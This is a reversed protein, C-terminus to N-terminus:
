ASRASCELPSRGLIKLVSGEGVKRYDHYWAGIRRMRPPTVLSVVEDANRALEAIVIRNAVPAALVVKTAGRRRAGEAAAALTGGTLVGDDVIIATKGRVDVAPRGARYRRADILIGEAADKALARVQGNTLDARALAERDLVLAWGESVVGIVLSPLTFARLKRVFCVDIALRLEEAVGDAVVLGGHEIGLVVARTGTYQALARGLMRGAMFRNAFPLMRATPSDEIHQPVCDGGGGLMAITRDIEATSAKALDNAM